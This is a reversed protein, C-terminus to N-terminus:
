PTFGLIVWIYIYIYIYIISKKEEESLHCSAKTDDMYKKKCKSGEEKLNNYNPWTSELRSSDLGKQM